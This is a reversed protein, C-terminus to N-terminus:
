YSRVSVQIRRCYECSFFPLASVIWYSCSGSVSWRTNCSSEDVRNPRLFVTAPGPASAASNLVDDASASDICARAYDVRGHTTNRLM